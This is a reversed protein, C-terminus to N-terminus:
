GVFSDCINGILIEFVGWSKLNYDVSNSDVQM